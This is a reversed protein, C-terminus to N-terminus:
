AADQAGCSVAGPKSVGTMAAKGYSYVRMLDEYFNCM